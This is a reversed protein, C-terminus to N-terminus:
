ASPTINCSGKENRLAIIAWRNPHGVLSNYSGKENRLAIIRERLTYLSKRNYSGKENRLAIIVYQSLIQIM